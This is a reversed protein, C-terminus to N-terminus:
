LTKPATLRIPLESAIPFAEVDISRARWHQGSRSLPFVSELGSYVTVLDPDRLLSLPGPIDVSRSISQSSAPFFGSATGMGAAM